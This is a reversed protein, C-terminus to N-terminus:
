LSEDDENLREFRTPRPGNYDPEPTAQQEVRGFMVDRYTDGEVVRVPVSLPVEIVLGNESTFIAQTPIGADRFARSIELSRNTTTGVVQEPLPEYESSLFGYLTILIVRLTILHPTFRESIPFLSILGEIVLCIRRAERPDELARNLRERAPQIYSLAIISRGEPTEAHEAITTLASLQNGRLHERSWDIFKQAQESPM